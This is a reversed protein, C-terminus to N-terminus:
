PSKRRSEGSSATPKTAFHMVGLGVITMGYFMTPCILGAIVGSVMGDRIVDEREDMMGNPMPVWAKDSLMADGAAGWFVIAATLLVGVPWLITAIIM